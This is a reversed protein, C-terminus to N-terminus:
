ALLCARILSHQEVVEKTLAAHALPFTRELYEHLGSFEQGRFQAPDQHSITQFRIAQALREAMEQGNLTVDIAPEAQVQKSTLNMTRLLVVSVLLVLGLGVLLLAGGM